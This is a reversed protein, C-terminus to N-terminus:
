LGYTVGIQVPANQLYPAMIADPMSNKNTYVAEANAQLSTLGKGSIWTVPLPLGPASCDAKAM